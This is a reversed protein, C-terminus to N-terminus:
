SFRKRNNRILKFQVSSERHENTKKEERVYVGFWIEFQFLILLQFYCYLLRSAPKEAPGRVFQSKREFKM